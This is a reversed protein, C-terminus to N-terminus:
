EGGKQVDASVEIAAPEATGAGVADPPSRYNSRYHERADRVRRKLDRLEADDVDGAKAETLQEELETMALQARLEESTPM